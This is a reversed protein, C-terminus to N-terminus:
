LDICHEQKGTLIRDSPLSKASTIGDSNESKTPLSNPVVAEMNKTMEKPTASAAKMERFTGSQFTLHIEHVM